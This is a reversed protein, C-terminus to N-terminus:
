NLTVFYLGGRGRGGMHRRTSKQLCGRGWNFDNRSKQVVGVNRNLVHITVFGSEGLTTATKWQLCFM